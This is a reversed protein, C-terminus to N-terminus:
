NACKAQTLEVFAQAVLEHGVVNLHGSRINNNHFGNPPKGTLRYSEALVDVRTFPIGTSEAAAQIITSARISHDTERSEGDALYRFRPIYLAYTPAKRKLDNLVFQLLKETKPDRYNSVERTVERSAQGISPDIALKAVRNKLYTALSSRSLVPDFMTRLRSLPREHLVIEKIDMGSNDHIVEFKSTAIDAIDGSSFVVVIDDFSIGNLQREVRDVIVPYHIVTTGSRGANLVNICPSNQEAISTFNLARPVQLAETFSDGVAIIKRTAEDPSYEKDNLGQSNLENRAYGERSHLITANGRYVWGLQPDPISAAPAIVFLRLFLESIGLIILTAVGARYINRMM